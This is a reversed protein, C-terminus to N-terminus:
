KKKFVVVIDKQISYANSFVFNDCKLVILFRKFISENQKCVSNTRSILGELYQMIYHM